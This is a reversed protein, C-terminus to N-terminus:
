ESSRKGFCPQDGNTIIRRPTGGETPIVYIDRRDGTSELDITTFAILKGDPTFSLPEFAQRAIELRDPLKSRGQKSQYVVQIDEADMGMLEIRSVFLVAIRELVNSIGFTNYRAKSGPGSKPPVLRTFKGGTTPIRDISITNFSHYSVYIEDGDPSFRPNQLNVEYSEHRSIEVILRPEGTGDANMTAIALSARTGYPLGLGHNVWYEEDSVIFCITKGDPSFSPQICNRKLWKTEHTSTQIGMNMLPKWGSGTLWSAPTILKPEGGTIPIQYLGISPGPEIVKLPDSSLPTRAPDGESHEFIITKGDPSISPYGDYGNTLQKQGTGDGRATWIQNDRRFAIISEDLSEYPFGGCGALLAM